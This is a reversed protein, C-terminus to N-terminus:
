PLGAKRGFRWAETRRADTSTLRTPTACSRFFRPENMWPQLMAPRWSVPAFYMRWAEGHRGIFVDLLPAKETLAALAYRRAIGSPQRCSQSTTCGLASFRKPRGSRRAYKSSATSPKTTTAIESRTSRKPQSDHPTVRRGRTSVDHGNTPPSPSKMPAVEVSPQLRRRNDGCAIKRGTHPPACRESDIRAFEEGHPATCGRRIWEPQCALPHDRVAHARHATNTAAVSHGITEAMPRNAGIAIRVRRGFRLCTVRGSAAAGGVGRHVGSGSRSDASFLDSGTPSQSIATPVSRCMELHAAGIDVRRSAGVARKGAPVAGAGSRQGAIALLVFRAWIDHTPINQATAAHTTTPHPLELASPTFGPCPASAAASIFGPGAASAAASLARCGGGSPLRPSPM